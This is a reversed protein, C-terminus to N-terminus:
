IKEEEIKDRGLPNFTYDWSPPDDMGATGIERPVGYHYIKGVRATFYGNNRFLQPLTVVNPSTSRLNTQLDYIGITDPRQGTLMSARSPNCLPYQCYARDFRVGRAALADINPTRVITGGGYCGVNMNLDDIAIFLVNPRAAADARQVPPFLAVFVLSAVFRKWVSQPM